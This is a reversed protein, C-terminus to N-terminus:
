SASQIREWEATCGNFLKRVNSASEKGKKIKEMWPSMAEDYIQKAKEVGVQRVIENYWNKGFDKSYASSVDRANEIMIQVTSVAACEAAAEAQNSGGIQTLVVLGVIGAGVAAFKKNKVIKLISGKEGLKGINEKTVASKVDGIIKERNEYVNMAADQVSKKAAGVADSAMAKGESVLTQSKESRDNSRTM